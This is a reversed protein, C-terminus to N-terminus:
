REGSTESNSMIGSRQAGGGAMRGESRALLLPARDGDLMTAAVLLPENIGLM